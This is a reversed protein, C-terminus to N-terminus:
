RASRRQQRIARRTERITQRNKNIREREGLGPKVPAENANRRVAKERDTGSIGPKERPPEQRITNRTDRDRRNQLGRLPMEKDPKLLQPTFEGIRLQELSGFIKLDQPAAKIIRTKDSVECREGATVTVREAAQAYKVSVSGTKMLVLTSGGASQLLFETGSPEIRANPTNYAYAISSQGSSASVLIGRSLTGELDTHGSQGESGLSNISFDAPGFLTIAFGSGYELRMMARDPLSIDSSDFIRTGKAAAHGNVMIGEDARVATLFPREQVTPARFLLTATAVIAAAIALSAAIVNRPHLAILSRIGRPAYASEDEALRDWSRMVRIKAADSARLTRYRPATAALMTDRRARCHGCDALHGAISEQARDGLTGAM